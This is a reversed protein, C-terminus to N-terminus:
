VEDQGVQITYKVQWSQDHLSNDHRLAELRVMAEDLLVPVAAALEPYFNNLRANMKSMSSLMERTPEIHLVTLSHFLARYFNRLYEKRRKNLKSYRGGDATIRHIARLAQAAIMSQDARVEASLSQDATDAILQILPAITDVEWVTNLDNVIMLLREVGVVSAAFAHNFPVIDRIKGHDDFLPRYNLYEVTGIDVLQGRHDYLIEYRYGWPTPLGFVNLALMTDRSHDPILQEPKLGCHEVWYNVFPDTPFVKGFDYKGATAEKISTEVFYAVRLNDKKLGLSMLFRFETDIAYKTLEDQRGADTMITMGGVGAMDFLSLYRFRDNNATLLTPWDQHRIVPQIKTFCLDHDYELYQGFAAQM